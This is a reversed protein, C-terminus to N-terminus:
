DDGLIGKFFDLIESKDADLADQLFPTPHIGETSVFEGLREDFYTWPVNKRGNGGIAYIGTGQHVYPAYNLNSGVAGVVKKPQQTVEHTISARLNGTISPLCNEKSDAEVKLCAQEMADALASPLRQNVFLQLNKDVESSDIM